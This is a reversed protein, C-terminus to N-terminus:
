ATRVFQWDDDTGSAFAYGEDPRAYVVMSDGPGDGFVFPGAVLVADTDGRHYVVGVVAPITITGTAPAFAPEDPEAITVSGEFLALVEDPLPLRPDAGVTGYLMDELATLNEAPVETSDIVIHATPKLPKGNADVADVPVPTTSVAWSFNMAEPTENVTTRAKESPAAVAGYVLHLKYGRDPDVDDGILTRYCFGFTHRSQQGVEVGPQLIASGDCQAFEPPYTFAEITAGFQEASMLNLYKINDAYQPTAEAGSPSETVTTLGNWAVGEDYVGNDPIYLVGHDVGTEFRREGTQDWALRTM